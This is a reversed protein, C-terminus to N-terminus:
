PREKDGHARAALQVLSKVPMGAIPGLVEPHRQLFRVVASQTIVGLFNHDMDSGPGGTALVALRHTNTSVFSLLVQLM